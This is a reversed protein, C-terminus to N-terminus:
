ATLRFALWIGALGGVTGVLLSATSLAGGGWLEPIAGGVISGVVAGLMVMSKRSM